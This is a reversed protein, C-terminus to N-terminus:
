PLCCCRKYISGVKILLFTTALHSCVWLAITDFAGYFPSVDELINKWVFFRLFMDASYVTYNDCKHGQFRKNVWNVTKHRCDKGKLSLYLISVQMLAVYQDMYNHSHHAVYQGVYNDTYQGVYQAIYNDQNQGVYNDQNQGM